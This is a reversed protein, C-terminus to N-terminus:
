EEVTHEVEQILKQLHEEMEKLIKLGKKYELSAEDLGLSSDSLHNLVEEIEKQMEQYSKKPEIDTTKKPM